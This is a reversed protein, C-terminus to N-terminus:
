FSFISQLKVETKINNNILDLGSGIASKTTYITQAFRAWLSLKRSISYKLNIYYRYGKDFFVPISYSYLVDNEFAYMRSDYGDTEFYQIRINGSFPKLLPKYLIDTY